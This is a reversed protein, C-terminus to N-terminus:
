KEVIKNSCNLLYGPHENSPSISFSFSGYKPSRIHLASENSFVRISPFISPLLLLPSSLRHSPQIADSVRHVHTQYVGPTPSLCPPRAHQLEHPRFSDSMVSHSCQVSSFINMHSLTLLGCIVRGEVRIRWDGLDSVCIWRQSRGKREREWKGYTM